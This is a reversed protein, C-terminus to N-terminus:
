KDTRAKKEAAEKKELWCPIILHVAIFLWSLGIWTAIGARCEEDCDCGDVDQCEGKFADSVMTALNEMISVSAIGDQHMQLFFSAGSVLLLTGLTVSAFLFMSEYFRNVLLVFTVLAVVFVIIGVVNYQSLLAVGSNFLTEPEVDFLRMIAVVVTAVILATLIALAVNWVTLVLMGAIGAVVVASIIPVWVSDSIQFGFPTGYHQWSEVIVGAWLGVAIAALVAVAKPAKRGAVVMVLGLFLFISNLIIPTGLFSEMQDLDLDTSITNTLNKPIELSM